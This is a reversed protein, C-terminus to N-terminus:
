IYLLNNRPRLNRFRKLQGDIVKGNLELQRIANAIVQDSAQGDRLKQLFIPSEISILSWQPTISEGQVYNFVRNYQEPVRM